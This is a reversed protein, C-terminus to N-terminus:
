PEIGAPDVLLAGTADALGFRADSRRDVVTRTQQERVLDGDQDHRQYRYREKVVSRSWVCATGSLPASLPGGANPQTTGAAECRGGFGPRRGRARDAAVRARLEACTSTPVDRIDRAKRRLHAAIGVAVAAVVVMIMGLCAM